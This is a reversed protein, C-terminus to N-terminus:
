RRCRAARPAPRQLSIIPPAGARAEKQLTSVYSAMWGLKAKVDAAGGLHEREERIFRLVEDLLGPYWEASRGLALFDLFSLGDADVRVHPLRRGRLVSEAVIVRPYNAVRSELHHAEVLAPGFALSPRHFIKGQVVGGRILLRHLFLSRVTEALSALIRVLGKQSSPRPWSLIISDSFHTMCEGLPHSINGRLVYDARLVLQIGALLRMAARDRVSDAILKSWGLMDLFAFVREEYRIQRAAAPLTRLLEIHQLYASLEQDV